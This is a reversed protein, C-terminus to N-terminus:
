DCPNRTSLFRFQAFLVAQIKFYMKLLGTCPNEKLMLFLSYILKSTTLSMHYAAWLALQMCIHVIPGRVQRHHILPFFYQLKGGVPLKFLVETYHFNKKRNRHRLWGAGEQICCISNSEQTDKCLECVNMCIHTLVVCM